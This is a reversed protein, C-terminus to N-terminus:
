NLCEHLDVPGPKNRESSVCGGPPCTAGVVVCTPYLSESAYEAGGQTRWATTGVGGLPPVRPVCVLWFIHAVQLQCPARACVCVCSGRIDRQIHPPVSTREARHPVGLRHLRLARVGVGITAGATSYAARDRASVHQARLPRRKGGYMMQKSCSPRTRTTRPRPRDPARAISARALLSRGVSARDVRAIRGQRSVLPPCGDDDNFPPPLDWTQRTCALRSAVALTHVHWYPSAWKARSWAAFKKCPSGLNTTSCRSRTVVLRLAAM